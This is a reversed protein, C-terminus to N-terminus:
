AFFTVKTMRLAVCWLVVSCFVFFSCVSILFASAQYQINLIFIISKDCTCCFYLHAVCNSAFVSQAISHSITVRNIHLM